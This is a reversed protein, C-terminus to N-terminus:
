LILGMVWENLYVGETELYSYNKLVGEREFGYREYLRIARENETAVTLEMRTFGQMRAIKIAEGIMRGGMGKGKMGNDLAVGGLYVIHRNRHRMPQLKFMGVDVGDEAYVYLHGRKVLEEFVPQFSAETMPDYLLWRNNEADMYLRYIFEMDEGTALRNM